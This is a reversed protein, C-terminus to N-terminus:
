ELPLHMTKVYGCKHLPHQYSSRNKKTRCHVSQQVPLRSYSAFSSPLFHGHSIPTSTTIRTSAPRWITHQACISRQQNTNRAIDRFNSAQSHPIRKSGSTSKKQTDLRRKLANRIEGRERKSARGAGRDLRKKTWKVTDDGMFHCMQSM